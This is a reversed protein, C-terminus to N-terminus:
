DAVLVEIPPLDGFARITYTGPDLEGLDVITAKLVAIEICAVNRAASGERITLNFASGDRAVDVGALVSCPEVGSWWTVTVSVRRGDVTARLGAAGVDHIGFLGAVPTVMTAQSDDPAGGAGPDVVGGGGAGPDGPNGPVGGGGGGPESGNAPATPM